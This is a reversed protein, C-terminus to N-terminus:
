TVKMKLATQTFLIKRTMKIEKPAKLSGHIRFKLENKYPIQDSGQKEASFSHISSNSMPVAPLSNNKEIKKRM